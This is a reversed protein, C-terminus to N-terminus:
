VLEKLITRARQGADKMAPSNLSTVGNFDTYAERDAYFRLTAILDKYSQDSRKLLQAAEASKSASDVQDAFKGLVIALRAHRDRHERARQVNVLLQLAALKQRLSANQELLDM